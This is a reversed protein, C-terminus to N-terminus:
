DGTASRHTLWLGVGMAALFLAPNVFSSILSGRFSRRYQYARHEFVRSAAQFGSPAPQHRAPAGAEGPARSGSPEALGTTM